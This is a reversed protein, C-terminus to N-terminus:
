HLGSVARRLRLDGRRQRVARDMGGAAGPAMRHRHPAAPTDPAKAPVAEAATSWDSDGSRNGARVQIQYKTGNTLGTVTASTTTSTNSANWETWDGWTPSNGACTLDASKTCARYRVDYDTIASSGDGSPATWSVDLSQDKVTLSPAGPTDPTTSPYESAATSWASEGVSNAARVQVEYATGNTLDSITVSTATDTSTEGTRDTWDGWTPNNGTCTLDASKTCARHQVDYDTIAQGNAPPPRDM